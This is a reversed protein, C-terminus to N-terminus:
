PVDFIGTPRSTPHAPAAGSPHENSNTAPTPTKGVVYKIWINRARGPAWIPEGRWDKVTNRMMGDGADWKHEEIAEVQHSALYTPKAIFEDVNATADCFSWKGSSADTWFAPQGEDIMGAAAFYKAGNWRLRDNVVNFVIWDGPHLEVDVREKTAGYREGLLHRDEDDVRKGNVYIEVVFDDAVLYLFRAVVPPPKSPSTSPTEAAAAPSSAAASAVAPALGPPLEALRKEVEAKASAIEKAPSKSTMAAAWSRVDRAFSRTAKLADADNAREAISLDLDTLQAAAKYNGARVGEAICANIPPLLAKRDFKPNICRSLEFLADKRANLGDIQFEEMAAIAALTTPPDCAEMALDRARGLLVWKGAPDDKTEAADQLMRKALALKQEPTRAGRILDAYVENVVKRAKAESAPDPVARRTTTRATTSGSWAPAACCAVISLIIVSWIRVPMTQAGKWPNKQNM